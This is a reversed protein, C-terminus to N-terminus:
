VALPIAYDIPRPEKKAVANHSEFLFKECGILGSILSICKSGVNFVFTSDVPVLALYPANVILCGYVGMRVIEQAVSRWEKKNAVILNEARVTFQQVKFAKFTESKMEYLARVDQLNELTPNELLKLMKIQKKLGLYDNPQINLANVKELWKEAAKNLDTKEASEPLAKGAALKEALAEDVSSKLANIRLSLVRMKETLMNQDVSQDNVNLVIIKKMKLKKATVSNEYLAISSILNNLITTAFLLCFKIPFSAAPTLKNLKNWYDLTALTTVGLFCIRKLTTLIKSIEYNGKSNKLMGLSYPESYFKEGTRIWNFSNKFTDYNSFNDALSEFWVPSSGYRLFILGAVASVVNGLKEIGDISDAFRKLTDFVIAYANGIANSINM